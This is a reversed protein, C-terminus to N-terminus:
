KEAPATEPKLGLKERIFKEAEDKKIEGNIVDVKDAIVDGSPAINKSEIFVYFPSGWKRKDGAETRIKYHETNLRESSATSEYVTAFTISKLNLHAKLNSVSAYEGVGIIGLGDKAYKEHLAQVIAVDYEWDHCWPAFYVVMVLKKGAAFERLDIKEDGKIAKLSWNPYSIGGDTIPQQDTQAFASTFGLCHIFIALFLKM